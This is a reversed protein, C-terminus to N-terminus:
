LLEVPILCDITTEIRFNSEVAMREAHFIDMDYRQGRTIGLKAASADLDVSQRLARHLGGLDIALKKNIFVWVDDDGVFTFLEGGKYEFQTHIETTFHYNHPNGAGDNSEHVGKGDLPFFAASDYVYSAGSKILTIDLMFTSNVGPVDHYWEAFEKPGTTERTAGASAYVPKDDPGLEDKVIGPLAVQSAFAPNEFDAHAARFDRVTAHLTNGCGAADPLAFPGADGQDRAGGADRFLEPPTAADESRSAGAADLGDDAGDEGQDASGDGREAPESESGLKKESAACSATAILLVCGLITNLQM